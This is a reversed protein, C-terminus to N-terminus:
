KVQKYLYERLLEWTRKGVKGDASLNQAKQFAKIAERTQKGMRGDLSGPEYGANKLAIQIQKVNPHSKVEPIIRRKSKKKVPGEKEEQGKSLSERLNNIEDDKSRLQAELVSIQNRLGQAELNNQKRFTACGGLSVIFAILAIFIFGKRVM